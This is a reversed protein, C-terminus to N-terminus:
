EGSRLTKLAGEGFVEKRLEKLRGEQVLKRLHEKRDEEKYAETEKGKGKTVNMLIYVYPNLDLM